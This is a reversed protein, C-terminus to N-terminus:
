GRESVARVGQKVGVAVDFGSGIWRARSVLREWPNDLGVRQDDFVWMGHWKFPKIVFIANNM